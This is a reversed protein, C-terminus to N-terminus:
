SKKTLELNAEMIEIVSVVQDQTCQIWRLKYDGNGDMNLQYIKWRLEPTSWFHKKYDYSLAMFNKSGFVDGDYRLAAPTM